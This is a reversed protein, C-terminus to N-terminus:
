KVRKLPHIGVLTKDEWDSRSTAVPRPRIDVTRYTQPAVSGRATRRPPSIQYASTRRQRNLQAEFADAYQLATAYAGQDFESAPSPQDFELGHQAEYRAIAAQQDFNTAYRAHMEYAEESTMPARVTAGEIDDMAPAPLPIVDVTVRKPAEQKKRDILVVAFPMALLAGGGAAYLETSDATGCLAVVGGVAVLKLIARLM